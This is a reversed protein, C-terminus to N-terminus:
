CRLGLQEPSADKGPDRGDDSGVGEKGPVPSEDGGFPGVLGLPLTPRPHHLLDPLVDDPHGLAIRTPSVAPDLSGQLVDAM